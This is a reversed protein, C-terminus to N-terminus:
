FNSVIGGDCKIISGNMFNNVIAAECAQAIESTLGFRGLPTARIIGKSYNDLGKSLPTAIMGPCICNVRIKYKGLDRAMPLTMGLLSGKSAAYATQGRQGEIGAISAIFIIVGNCDKTKDFNEIM